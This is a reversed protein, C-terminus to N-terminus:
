GLLCKNITKDIKQAKALCDSSAAIYEFGRIMESERDEINFIGGGDLADLIYRLALEFCMFAPGYPLLRFDWEGFIGKAYPLYGRLLPRVKRLDVRSEGGDLVVCMSRVADGFDCYPYNYMATDLDLLCVAKGDRFVVNSLKADCHLFFKNLGKSIFEHRVLSLGKGVEIATEVVISSLENFEDMGARKQLETCLSDFNHFGPISPFFMEIPRSNMHKLFSGYIRGVETATSADIIERVEGPVYPYLRYVNGDGDEFFPKGDKAELYDLVEFGNEGERILEEKLHKAVLASNQCVQRPNPFSKKSIRQLTYKRKGKEVVFYTENIHGTLCREFVQGSAACGFEKLVDSLEM